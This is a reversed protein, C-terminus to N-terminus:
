YIAKCGAAVIFTQRARDRRKGGLQADINHNFGGAKECRSLCL